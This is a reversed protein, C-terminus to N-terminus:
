PKRYHAPGLVDDDTAFVDEISNSSAQGVEGDTPPDGGSSSDSPAAATDGHTGTQTSQGSQQEDPDFVKTDSDIEESGVADWYTVTQENQTALKTERRRPKNGGTSQGTNSNLTTSQNQTGVATQKNGSNSSSSVSTQRSTVSGSSSGSPSTGGNSSSSGTGIPAKSLGKSAMQASFAARGPRGKVANSAANIGGGVAMAGATGAYAGAGATAAVGAAAGGIKAPKKTSALVQEGIQTSVRSSRKIIEKQSKAALYLTMISIFITFDEVLGWNTSVFSIRILIAPPIGAVLLGPYAGAIQKSLGAFRNFPWVELAWFTAVIPMGLTLLVVMLWRAIFIFLAKLYVYGAVLLIVLLVGPGLDGLEELSSLTRVAEEEGLAGFVIAQGVADCFQTAISAVPLWFFLCLFVILLRRGLKKRVVPNMSSFRLGVVAWMIFQLGLALGVIGEFYVKSILTDWPANAASQFAINIGEPGNSSPAPTRVMPDLMWGVLDQFYDLVEGLKSELFVDFAGTLVDKWNVGGLQM